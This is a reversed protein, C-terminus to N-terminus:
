SLPHPDLGHADMAPRLPIVLRCWSLFDRQCIALASDPRLGSVSLPPRTTRSTWIQQFSSDTPQSGTLLPRQPLFTPRLLHRYYAFAQLEPEVPRVIQALEM